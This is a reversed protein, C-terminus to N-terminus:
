GENNVGPAQLKLERLQQESVAAPSNTLLCMASTTKPFPIVDRISTEGALLMVLRDLGLAIGGHPPTGYSLADLFFGFKERAEADDIGLTRFVKEQIDPRHIRISGGGIELGNLVLDYANALATAPDDFDPDQPSTFPHHCAFFRQEDADWEFMPFDVVWVFSFRDGPILQRQRAVHLRLGGLADCVTRYPGAVLLLIDGETGGAATMIRARTEEDVVGPLSSKHQGGDSKIWALGSAGLGKVVAQLEDLERRSAQTGGPVVIGRVYGGDRVINRFIAFESDRFFAGLDQIEMGFRTDPRDTGFRDMADRYSLREFPTETEVGILHFIRQMMPELLGFIDETQIFSVEIDVQTFEPQRDARLDEDRFCRVIQFYRDMGSIMLMQKFLQPSQPLAYFRGPHIRSPVLYDRAGEPTSRTLFPTEIELFHQEDLFKRIEMTVQHRLKINRTMPRRRLDLYRYKMRLEESARVEDQIEFPPLEATNLVELRSAIIEIQGTAMEPNVNEPTRAVVRGEIQVVFEGRLDAARDFLDPTEDQNFTVQTLGYRDRIQLFLLGGLNRVAHVWGVLTVTKGTHSITLEGCTHSRMPM